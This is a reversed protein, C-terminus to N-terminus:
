DLVAECFSEPIEPPPLFAKSNGSFDLLVDYHNLNTHCLEIYYQPPAQLPFNKLSIDYKNSSATVKQPVFCTWQWDKTPSPKTFVYLLLQLFMATAHLLLQLFMATAHLEIQTTYTGNHSMKNCHKKFNKTFDLAQFLSQNNFDTMIRPSIKWHWLSEKNITRFFSNLKQKNRDYNTHSIKLWKNLVEKQINIHM